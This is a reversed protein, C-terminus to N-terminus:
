TICEVDEPIDWRSLKIPHLYALDAPFRKLLNGLDRGYRDELDRLESATWIAKGRLLATQDTSVNPSTAVLATPIAIEVFLETAAFVGCLRAFKPLLAKQVMFIDSYGGVLPFPLHTGRWLRANRLVSLMLSRLVLYTNGAFRRMWSGRSARGRPHSLARRPVSKSGIGKEAFKIALDQVSPLENTLEVGRQIPRWRVAEWARQWPRELTTFDILESIFSANQARVNFVENANEESIQPNLFLDDAIFLYSDTEIDLLASAAQAIYGQFFHSNGYVAFVDADDGAYFPM